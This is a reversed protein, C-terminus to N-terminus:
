MWFRERVAQSDPKVIGTDVWRRKFLLANQKFRPNGGTSGVRHEFKVAPWHIIKAGALRARVCLDVDEWYGRGYATDFGGLQQWLGRHIAFAAGTTWSVDRPERLADYDANAFGLAAHYPQCAADFLGGVSQVRGDPSLLTPGAIGVAPTLFAALLQSDWAETLAKTDQNLFFLIDGTARMAGANCNGAFGLNVLNRQCIEGFLEPGDYEPSADDQILIETDSQARLRELSHLCRLVDALANYAPIIVSLKM